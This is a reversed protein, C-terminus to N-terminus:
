HNGRDFAKSVDLAAAVVSSNNCLFHQITSRLAGKKFGFQLEDNSFVEIGM